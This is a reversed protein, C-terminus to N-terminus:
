FCLNKNEIKILVVFVLPSKSLLFVKEEKSNKKM